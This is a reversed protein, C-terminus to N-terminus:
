LHHVRILERNPKQIVRCGCAFPVLAYGDSVTLTMVSSFVNQKTGNAYSRTTKSL